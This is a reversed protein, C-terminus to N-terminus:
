LKIHRWRKGLCIDKIVTKSCKFDLCLQDVFANWQKRIEIVQADTVCAKWHLEGIPKRDRGKAMKDDSNDKDTGLFLHKPNVCSPHDCRHLVLM